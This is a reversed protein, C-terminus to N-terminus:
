KAEAAMMDVLKYRNQFLMRTKPHQQCITAEATLQELLVSSM